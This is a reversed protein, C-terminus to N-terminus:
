NLHFVISHIVIVSEITYEEKTIDFTGLSQKAM